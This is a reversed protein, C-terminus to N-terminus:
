DIQDHLQRHATVLQELPELPVRSLDCADLIAGLQRATFARWQRVMVGEADAGDRLWDPVDIRYKVRRLEPEAPEPPGSCDLGSVDGGDSGGGDSGRQAGAQVFFELRFVGRSALARMESDAGGHGRAFARGRTGECRAQALDLFANLAQLSAENTRVVANPQGHLTDPHTRMLFAAMMKRLNFAPAGAQSSAHRLRGCVMVSLPVHPVRTRVCSHRCGLPQAAHGRLVGRFINM